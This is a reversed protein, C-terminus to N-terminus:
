SGFKNRGEMLQGYKENKMSNGSWGDHQEAVFPSCVVFKGKGELERDLHGNPNIALFKDYFRSHVIYLTLGSFSNVTNDERLEGLYVSALYLDFDEPRNALFYDWAGPAFFRIDDEAIIVSEFEAVKAWEVVQKHALSINEKATLDPIHVGDWLKYNVIGQQEIEKLLRPMRESRNGCIINLRQHM